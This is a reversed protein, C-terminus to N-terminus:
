KDKLPYWHDFHMILFTQQMEPIKTYKENVKVFFVSEKKKTTKNYHM